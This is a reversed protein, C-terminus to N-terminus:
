FKVRECFRVADPCQIDLFGSQDSGMDWLFRFENQHAYHQNKIFYKSQNVMDGLNASLKNLDVKGQPSEIVKDKGYIFKSYTHKSSSIAKKIALSFQEPDRIIYGDNYGFKKITSKSPYDICACFIRNNYGTGYQGVVTRMKNRAVLVTVGEQDDGIEKHEFSNYYAFSGLRIAGSAFFKDIHEKMGLKVIPKLPIKGLKFKKEFIPKVFNSTSPSYRKYLFYNCLDSLENDNLKRDIWM